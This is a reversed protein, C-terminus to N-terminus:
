EPHHKRTGDIQWGNMFENNKIDSYYETTYIYWM